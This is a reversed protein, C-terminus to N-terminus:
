CHLVVLLGLRIEEQVGSNVEGGEAYNSLDGYKGRGEDVFIVRGGRSKHAYMIRWMSCMSM